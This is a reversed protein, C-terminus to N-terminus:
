SGARRTRRARANTPASTPNGRVHRSFGQSAKQPSIVAESSKQSTTSGFLSMFDDLDRLDIPEDDDPAVEVADTVAREPHRQRLFEDALDQMQRFGKYVDAVGRIGDGEVSVECFHREDDKPFADDVFHYVVRDIRRWLQERNEFRKTMDEATPLSGDRNRFEDDDSTMSRYMNELPQVSNIAVRSWAMSKNQYRAKVNDTEEDLVALLTAWKMSTDRFENLILLPQYLYEDFPYEYAASVTHAVKKFDTRTLLPEGAVEDAIKRCATTKGSGAKGFHYEVFVDRCVPTVADMRECYLAKIADARCAFRVGLGIVEDPTMGDAIYRDIEDMVNERSRFDGRWKPPVVVFAGKDAHRGEKNMYATVSKRNGKGEEIHCFFPFFAQRLQEWTRASKYYVSIHLHKYNEKGGVEFNVGVEVTDIEDGMDIRYIPCNAGESDKGFGVLNDKCGDKKFSRYEPKHKHTLYDLFFDVTEEPTLFGRDTLGAVQEQPHPVTLFFCHTKENNEFPKGDVFKFGGDDRAILDRVVEASPPEIAVIASNKKKM